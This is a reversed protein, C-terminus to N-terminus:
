AKRYGTSRSDASLVICVLNGQLVQVKATQRTLQGGPIVHLTGSSQNPLQALLWSLQTAAVGFGKWWKM